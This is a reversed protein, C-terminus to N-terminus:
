SRYPNHTIVERRRVVAKLLQGTSQISDHMREKLGDKIEKLKKQMRKKITHRWITFRGNKWTKGCIHTFGLFTFTDPKGENRKKRDESAHRGFEILRTKEPHLELEFKRLRVKLEEHFQKADSEYQFGIWNEGVM